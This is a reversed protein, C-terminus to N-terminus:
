RVLCPRDRQHTRSATRLRLITYWPIVYGVLGAQEFGLWQMVGGYSYSVSEATATNCDKEGEGGAVRTAGATMHKGSALISTHRLLYLPKWSGRKGSPLKLDNLEKPVMGRTCSLGTSHAAHRDREQAVPTTSCVSREVTCQWALAEHM